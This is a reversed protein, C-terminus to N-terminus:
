AFEFLLPHEAIKASSQMKVGRSFGKLNRGQSVCSGRTHSAIATTGGRALDQAMQVEMM